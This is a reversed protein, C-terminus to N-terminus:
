RVARRRRTWAVLGLLSLLLLRGRSDAAMPAMSCGSDEEPDANGEVPTGTDTGTGTAPGGLGAGGAGPQGGAGGEGTVPLLFGCTDSCSTELCATLADAAGNGPCNPFCPSCGADAACAASESCCSDKICDNCDAASFSLGCSVAPEACLDDGQCETVCQSDCACTFIQEYLAAGSPNTTACQNQCGITTCGNICDVYADCSANDFCDEVAGYCTGLQTVAEFCEDCSLPLYGTQNIVPMIFTDYVASVRAGTGFGTCEPNADTVTSAVAAVRDGGGTARVAPGGSDGFCQGGTAQDYVLRLASLEFINRNISRRNSTGGFETQGYGVLTVVQGVALGDEAPSMAPMVQPPNAAAGTFRVV